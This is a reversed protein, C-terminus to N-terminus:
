KGKRVSLMCEEVKLRQNIRDVAEEILRFMREYEEREEKEKSRHKDPHYRGRMKRAAREVQHTPADEPLGLFSYEM